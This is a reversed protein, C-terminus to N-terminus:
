ITPIYRDFGGYTTTSSRMYPNSALGNMQAPTQLTTFDGSLTSVGLTANENQYHHGPSGFSGPYSPKVQLSTLRQNSYPSNSPYPQANSSVPVPSTGNYPYPSAVAATNPSPATNAQVARLSSPSISAGYSEPPSIQTVPTTSVMDNSLSVHGNVSDCDQQPRNNPITNHGFAVAGGPRNPDSYMSHVDAAAHTEPVRSTPGIINDISFMRPNAAASPSSVIAPPYHGLVQHGAGPGAVPHMIPSLYNGTMMGSQHAYYANASAHSHGYAKMVHTPTFASQDQMYSNILAKESDTRKFRKRRRLFSGNDFMDEAAPDLTWYNGKGPKGPERPLKIFCDNLTLNHRISNQWKKNQERYFPFREMIFKYIHGLTLKREPSSAIAMSILAIYSYPPKGRQIPRKRRRGSSTTTVVDPDTTNSNTNLQQNDPDNSANDDSRSPSSHDYLDDHPSCEEDEMDDIKSANSYNSDNIDDVEEKVSSNEKESGMQIEVKDNGSQEQMTCSKEYNPYAAKTDPTASRYGTANYHIAHPNGHQTNMHCLPEQKTIGPHGIAVNQAQSVSYGAMHPTPLYSRHEFPNMHVSNDFHLPAPATYVQGNYAAYSDMTGFIANYSTSSVNNLTVTSTSPVYLDNTSQTVQFIFLSDQFFTSDPM